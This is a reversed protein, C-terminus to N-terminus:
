AKKRENEVRIVTEFVEHMTQEYRPLSLKVQRVGSPVAQASYRYHEPLKLDEYEWPPGDLVWNFEWMVGTWRINIPRCGLIEKAQAEVDLTVTRWSRSVM